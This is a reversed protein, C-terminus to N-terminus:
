GQTGPPAYLAFVEAGTLDRTANAFRYWVPKDDIFIQSDFLWPQGGDVLGVPVAYHSGDRLRYFLHTGCTKCFGREAWDSSPYVALQAEGEIRPAGVCEFAFMPGGSWRRCIGCHCAGVEHSAATAAIRVAGCLCRGDLEFTDM